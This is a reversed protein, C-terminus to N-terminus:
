TGQTSEISSGVAGRLCTLLTESDVPKALFGIVGAQLARRRTADDPYATVLITPITFGGEILALFLQLGTMDPMQMDAILCATDRQQPSALFAAGSHFAAVVFGFAKVLASLAERASTDDDVIAILQTVTM